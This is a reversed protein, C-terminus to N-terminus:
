CTYYLLGSSYVCHDRHPWVDLKLGSILLNDTKAVIEDAIYSVSLVSHSRAFCHIDSRAHTRHDSVCCLLTYLINVASVRRVCLLVIHLHCRRSGFDLNYVTTVCYRSM